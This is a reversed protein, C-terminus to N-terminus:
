KKMAKKVLEESVERLKGASSKDYSLDSSEAEKKDIFYKGTVSNVDESSALYVTTDSGKEPSRMFPWSMWFFPRWLGKFDNGFNTRVVGPHLVNVTTGTDKLREALEYTFYVNCLKADGYAKFPKYKKEAMLDSFDLRGMTHGQSSVNIIRSSKTATIVEMLENTLLFHGLHNVAFTLEYGDHSLLRKSFIGGANNILVDIHPYDRRIKDAASKVSQLSALDLIIIDILADKKLDLIEKKIKQAKESNRVLMVVHAGMLALRRTAAKGIGSTAGTILVTKNKL